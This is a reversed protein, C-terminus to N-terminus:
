WCSARIHVRVDVFAFLVHGVKLCFHLMGTGIGWQAMEMYNLVKSKLPNADVVEFGIGEILYRWSTLLIRVVVCKWMIMHAVLVILIKAHPLLNEKGDHRTSLLRMNIEVLFSFTPLSDQLFSFKLWCEEFVTWLLATRINNKKEHLLPYPHKFFVRLGSAQRITTNFSNM